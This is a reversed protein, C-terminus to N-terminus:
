HSAQGVNEKRILKAKEIRELAIKMAAEHTSINEEESIQLIHLTQSYIKETKQWAQKEDYGIVEQFCNIVGGANILFDPAYTIGREKLLLADRNEDELQNNAAGAIIKFKFQPITTPNITAGLACPAYIDADFAYVEEPDIPTINLHRVANQLVEQNIDAAFVKAGDELLRKALYFGVHGIGQVVVKKNELSESGYIKKTAAKIGLFVGYATFPSPDGGGGHEPPKGSVFRTVPMMWAIEKTSTGVDEATIYRGGLEDVIEAFKRWFKEDRRSADGHIIVSKGGGLDIGSISSKFTMGRSLRLVDVMASDLSTYNWVRCGGLAPGLITNHIGIFGKLGTEEDFFYLVQEHQMREALELPSQYKPSLQVEKLTFSSM